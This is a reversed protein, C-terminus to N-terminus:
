RYSCKFISRSVGYGLFSSLIAMKVKIKTKSNGLVQWRNKNIFSEIRKQEDKLYDPIMMLITFAINVCRSSLAKYVATNENQRIMEEMKDITNMMKSNYSRSISDGHELYNYAKFDLYKGQNSKLIYDFNFKFDEGMVMDTDFRLDGIIDRRYIKGWIANPEIHKFKPNMYCLYEICDMQKLVECEQMVASLSENTNLVHKCGCSVFDVGEMQSVMVEIANEDMKDDSDIFAIYEGKAIDIGKNRAVSVGSNNIHIVRTRHDVIGDCFKACQWESGDDIIILELNKYTQRQVSQVAVNILEEDTNYVPMIVSVLGGVTKVKEKQVNEALDASKCNGVGMIASISPM